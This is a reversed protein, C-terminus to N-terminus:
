LPPPPPPHDGPEVPAPSMDRRMMMGPRMMGRDMAGGAMMHRDGSLAERQKPTLADYLAALAPREADLDALRKKLMDQERSMREVPTSTKRDIRATQQGCDAARRKAADLKIGKWRAFLPQESQTLSLRAELYAMRGAERAYGDECMQKLEATMEAASPMRMNRDASPLPTNQALMTGPAVLAIMVPKRPQVATQATANTTVLTVTAAGCLALSALTPILAKRMSYGNQFEFPLRCAIRARRRQVFAAGCSIKAM